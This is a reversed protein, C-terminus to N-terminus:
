NPPTWAPLTVTLAQSGAGQAWELDVVVAQAQSIGGASIVSTTPGYDLTAIEGAALERRALRLSVRTPSKVSVARVVTPNSGSGMTVVVLEGDAGRGVRAWGPPQCDYTEVAPDDKYVRLVEGSRPFTSRSQGPGRRDGSVGAGLRQGSGRCGRLAGLQWAQPFDLHWHIVCTFAASRGPEASSCVPRSWLFAHALLSDIFRSDRGRAAM